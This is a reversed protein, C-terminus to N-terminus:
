SVTVHSFRRMAAFFISTFFPTKWWSPSVYIYIIDWWDRIGQITTFYKQWKPTQFFKSVCFSSGVVQDVFSSYVNKQPSFKEGLPKWHDIWHTSLALLEQQWHNVEHNFNAAQIPAELQQYRLSFFYRGLSWWWSESISKRRGEPNGLRSKKPLAGIRWAAIKHKWQNFQFPPLCVKLTPYRWHKALKTM